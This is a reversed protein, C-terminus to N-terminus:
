PLKESATMYCKWKFRVQWFMTIHGHRIQFSGPFHYDQSKPTVHVVIFSHNKLWPLLASHINSFLRGVMVITKVKLLNEMKRTTVGVTALPFFIERM